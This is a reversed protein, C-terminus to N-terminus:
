QASGTVRLLMQTGSDLRVNRSASTIVSGQASGQASGTVTAPTNLVLGQLGIAGQSASTLNGQATLGGAARTAGSVTTNVAGTTAGGVASTAGPVAGGATSTVGGVLGGGGGARPAGGGGIAPPASALTANEDAATAVTAQVPPAIAQIVSSFSMEEGGKLIAKDFAIGLTSNAQEKTRAQAETVHGVLRTGKHIVVKGNEKLDQAVKADVEDGPKAKKADLPKTLEAQLNTGSSLAAGANSGGSSGASSSKGGGHKADSSNPEPKAKPEHSAQASANANANANASAGPAQVNQNANAGASAQGPAVSANASGSTSSSTQAVSALGPLGATLALTLVSKVFTKMKNFKRWLYSNSVLPIRLPATRKSAAYWCITHNKLLYM